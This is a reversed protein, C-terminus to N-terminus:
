VILFFQVCFRPRSYTLLIYDVNRLIYVSFIGSRPGQKIYVLSKLGLSCSSSVKDNYPSPVFIMGLLSLGQRLVFQVPELCKIRTFLIKKLLLLFFFTHRYATDIMSIIAKSEKSRCNVYSYKMKFFDDFWFDDLHSALLDAENVAAIEGTKM